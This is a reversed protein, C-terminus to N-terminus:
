RTCCCEKNTHCSPGRSCTGATWGLSRCFQACNAPNDCSAVDWCWCKQEKEGGGKPVVTITELPSAHCWAVLGVAVLICIIAMRTMTLPQHLKSAYIPLQLSRDHAGENSDAQERRGIRSWQFWGENHWRAAVLFHRGNQRFAAVHLCLLAPAPRRRRARELVAVVVAPIQAPRSAVAAVASAATTRFRLAATLALDANLARHFHRM